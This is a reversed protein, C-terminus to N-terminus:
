CLCMMLCFGTVLGGWLGGGPLGSLLRTLCCWGGGHPRQGAGALPLNRGLGQSSAAGRGVAEQWVTSTCSPPSPSLLLPVMKAQGGDLFSPARWLRGEPTPTGDLLHRPRRLPRALLRVTPACPPAAAAALVSPRAPPPREGTGKLAQHMGGIGSYLELVRLPAMGRCGAGPGARGGAEGLEARGTGGSNREWRGERRRALPEALGRGSRLGPAAASNPM